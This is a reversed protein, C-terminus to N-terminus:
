TKKTSVVDKINNFSCLLFSSVSVQMLCILVTKKVYKDTFLLCTQKWLKLIPNESVNTIERSDNDIFEVDEVIKTVNYEINSDPNNM